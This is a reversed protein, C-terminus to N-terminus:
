IKCANLNDLNNDTVADPKSRIHYLGCWACHYYEVLAVARTSPSVTYFIDGNSMAALVQELSWYRDFGSFSGTGVAMIHSHPNTQGYPGRTTCVIQYQAILIEANQPSNWGTGTQQKTQTRQIM